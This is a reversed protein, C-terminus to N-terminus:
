FDERSIAVFTLLKWSDILEYRSNGISLSTAFLCKWNPILLKDFSIEGGLFRNVNFKKSM